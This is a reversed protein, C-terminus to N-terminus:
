PLHARAISPVLNADPSFTQRAKFVNRNQTALFNALASAVKAQVKVPQVAGFAVKNTFRLITAQNAMNAPDVQAAAVGPLFAAVVLAATVHKM